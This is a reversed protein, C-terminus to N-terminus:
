RMIKDKFKYECLNNKINVVTFPWSIYFPYQLAILAVGKERTLGAEGGWRLKSKEAMNTIM